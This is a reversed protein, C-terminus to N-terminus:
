GLMGCVLAVNADFLQRARKFRGAALHRTVAIHSQSIQTLHEPPIFRLVQNLYHHFHLRRVTREVYANGSAHILCLQYDAMDRLIAFGESGAQHILIRDRIKELAKIPVGSGRAELADIAVKLLGVMGKLTDGIERPSMLRLTAGQHPVIDVVGDGALTRLAERVPVTGVGLRAALEPEILRQGPVLVGSGILELIRATVSAGLTTRDPRRDATDASARRARPVATEGNGQAGRKPTDMASTGTM